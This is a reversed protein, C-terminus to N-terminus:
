KLQISGSVSASVTGKGPEVALAEGDAMKGMAMSRMVPPAPMPGGGGDSVVSVERLSYGAFGFLRAQEAAMTRFREIAQATIDSELKERTERSLSYAVRAITMSGVQGSLQGIAAMDRGQVVLETSGHWGTMTGKQGYRPYISFAGTQVEVQGPRAVKRAQALAADVAQKLQSQVQNADNGEKSVSLVLTMWDQPVERTATASLNLVGSPAPPEAAQASGTALVLASFAGAARRALPSLPRAAAARAPSVASTHRHNMAKCRRASVQRHCARCLFIPLPLLQLLPDPGGFIGSM